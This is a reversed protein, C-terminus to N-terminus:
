QRRGNADDHQHRAAFADIQEDATAQSIGYFQQLKTSLTERDGAIRDIHENSLASWEQKLHDRLQHWNSAITDWNMRNGHEDRTM